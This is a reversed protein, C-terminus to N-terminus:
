QAVITNEIMAKSFYVTRGDIKAGHKKFIGLAEESHFVCGTEKLIKLSAGHIMSLDDESVAKLQLQM